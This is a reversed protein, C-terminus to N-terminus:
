CVDDESSVDYAEADDDEIETTFNLTAHECIDDYTVNLRDLLGSSLLYEKRQELSAQSILLDGLKSTEVSASCEFEKKSERENEMKRKECLNEEFFADISEVLPQKFTFGLEEKEPHYERVLIRIQPKGPRGGKKSVFKCVESKYLVWCPKKEVMGYEWDFQFQQLQDKTPWEVLSLSELQTVLQEIPQTM